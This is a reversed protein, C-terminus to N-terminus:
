LKGHRSPDLDRLAPDDARGSVLGRVLEVTLPTFMVGNRYHATAYILGPVAASRGLLPLDDPGRPRLGTRVDTIAAGALSPVLEAAASRLATVAEDTHREDFGVDEVTSGVLVTGDPWPVLYGNPGWLVRRIAGPEARLQILQGRIPRVPVTDADQITIHQSWSGAALVVRDAEWTAAAAQVGVRGAPLQHIRLAGVEAQFQAGHKKAAAAAAMTLSTVGVFGHIPVLLGGKSQQSALPELQEFADPTVWRAEVGQKALSSALSALRQVGADDFALELTGNRQYPIDHGSEERLRAIFGDYMELSRGGLDRFIDEHGEIYPALIGASARTAGQGLARTELVEVRAGSRALEYAVTCGVIGAGVVIVSPFSVSLLM